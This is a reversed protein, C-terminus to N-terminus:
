VNSAVRHDVLAQDETNSKFSAKKQTWQGLTVLFKAKSHCSGFVCCFCCQQVNRGCINLFEGIMKPFVKALSRFSRHRSSHIRRQYTPRMRVVLGM